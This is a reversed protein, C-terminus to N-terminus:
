CILIGTNERLVIILYRGRVKTTKLPQAGVSLVRTYTNPSPLIHQQPQQPTQPHARGDNNELAARAKKRNIM